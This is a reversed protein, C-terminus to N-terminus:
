GCFSSDYAFLTGSRPHEGTELNKVGEMAIKHTRILADEAQRFVRQAYRIGSYRCEIGINEAWAVHCIRQAKAPFSRGIRNQISM